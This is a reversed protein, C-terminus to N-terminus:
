AELFVFFLSFGLLRIGFTTSPSGLSTHPIDGDASSLLWHSSHGRRARGGEGALAVSGYLIRGVVGKGGHCSRPGMGPDPGSSRADPIPVQQCGGWCAQSLVSLQCAGAARAAASGGTELVSISGELGPIPIERRAFVQGAGPPLRMELTFCRAVNLTAAARKGSARGREAM